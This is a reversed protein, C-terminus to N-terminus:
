AIIDDRNVLTATVQLGQGQPTSASLDLQLPALWQSLAVPVRVVGSGRSIIAQWAQPVYNAVSGIQLTTGVPLNSAILGIIKAALYDTLFCFSFQLELRM